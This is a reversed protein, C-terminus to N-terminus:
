KETTPTDQSPDDPLMVPIDDVIPYRRGCVTCVLAEPEDRLPAKEVPCVLLARVAPDLM